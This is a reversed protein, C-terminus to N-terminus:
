NALIGFVQANPCFTNGGEIKGALWRDCLDERPCGGCRRLAEKRITTTATDGFAAAGPNLGIRIMMGMMRRSSAAVQSSRFWLMIAITVGVMFIAVGIQTTGM